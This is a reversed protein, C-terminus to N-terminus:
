MELGFIFCGFGYIEVFVSDFMKNFMNEFFVIEGMDSKGFFWFFQRYYETYLFDL